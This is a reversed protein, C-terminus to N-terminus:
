EKKEDLEVLCTVKYGDLTQHIKGLHYGIIVWAGPRDKMWQWKNNKLRFKRFDAGILFPNIQYCKELRVFSTNRIKEAIEYLETLDYDEEDDIRNLKILSGNKFYEIPGKHNLNILIDVLDQISTISFDEYVKARGDFYHDGVIITQYSHILAITKGQIILM